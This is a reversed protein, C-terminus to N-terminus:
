PYTFCIFNGSDIFKIGGSLNVSLITDQEWASNLVQVIVTQNDMWGMPRVYAVAFGAVGDFSSSPLDLLTAGDTSGFRLTSHFDTTVGMFNGAGEMWAVHLNDPSIVGEGAGQDIGPLLPFTHTEGSSLQRVTLSFPAPTGRDRYAVWSADPSLNLDIFDGSGPVESVSRNALDLHYLGHTPDFIADGVAELRTYWVGVPVGGEEEIHLPIISDGNLLLYQNAAITELNGVYLATERGNTLIRVTTYALLPQAPVGIMTGMPIDQSFTQLITEGSGDNQMLHYGNSSTYYVLTPLGSGTGSIPFVRASSPYPISPTERIGLFVGSDDYFSFAIPGDPKSLILGSPLLGNLAPPEGTVPETTAAPPNGGPPQTAPQPINISCALGALLLILFPYLLIRPKM